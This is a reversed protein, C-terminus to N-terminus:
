KTLPILHPFCSFRDTLVLIDSNGHPDPLDTLFDLPLHSWPHQQTPLLMLKGAPLTHPVKAQTCAIYSAIYHHIDPLMNLRWYKTRHLHYTQALTALLAWTILKGHLHLLVFTLGAHSASSDSYISTNAIDWDMEKPTLAMAQQM